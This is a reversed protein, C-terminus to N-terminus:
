SNIQAYTKGHNTHYGYKINAAERLAIAIAKDKSSGLFIRKGKISISAVWLKNHKIYVVGTVGSTNNYNKLRNQQNEYISVLRLNEIKNNLTNHDIHDILGFDWTGKHFAYIMRHVMITKGRLKTRLYTSNCTTQLSGVTSGILANGSTSITRILMGESYKFYQTLLSADVNISDPIKIYSM